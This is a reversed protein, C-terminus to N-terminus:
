VLGAIQMEKKILDSSKQSVECLPLRYYATGYGLLECAKKIPMPNVECFMSNMLNLYKLQLATAEATKGDLYLKVIDHVQKPIINSAVSIVGLGGLSLIPTIQDDNGSYIDIDPCLNAIKAVQSINGSAEKIAVINDIKSLELVTEPEINLGTRSAVSYLIIPLRVSKAITEYHKILGSQTSKNYYPTVSLIADAGVRECEQSLEAGHKTDNSGAGAIVPVRGNVQSVAFEVCAIQEHDTLTSAEGTTGCVVIADTNNEIQFEILRGFSDFDVAGTETFPTIIAVGAGKFISM